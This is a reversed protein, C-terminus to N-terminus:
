GCTEQEMPAICTVRHIERIEEATLQSRWKSLSEVKVDPVPMPRQLGLFQQLDHIVSMTDGALDEYQIVKLSSGISTRLLNMRDHHAKWRIACQAALSLSEYTAAMEQTIGLFRNPVPFERWRRHWSSVSNHKMMSAV